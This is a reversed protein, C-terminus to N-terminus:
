LVGAKKGAPKWDEFLNSLDMGMFQITRNRLNVEVIDEGFYATTYDPVAYIGFGTESMVSGVQNILSCIVMRVAYSDDDLRLRPSAHSIAEQLSDKWDTRGWHSYLVVASNDERSPFVFM